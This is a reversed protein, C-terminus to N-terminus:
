ENEILRNKKDLVSKNSTSYENLSKQLILDKIRAYPHNYRGVKETYSKVGPIDKIQISSEPCFNICAYCMYCFVEKSWAPHNNIIKVKKSLCVKECIGCGNCNIDHYFYNVGGTYESLKLLSIVVKELVYNGIRNYPHNILFSTDPNLYNKKNKIIEVIIDIQEIAKIELNKIQEITPAQYNEDKSDNSYMNILFHANLKKNKKKLIRHITRYDNFIIGMRTAVIFIYEASSLDLKRLFKIVAVPVTLAHVPFVVGIIKGNAKSKGENLLRIIPILNSDNLRKQLEKAVFLSNGTGSFYYIETNM